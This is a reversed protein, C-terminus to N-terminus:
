VGFLLATYNYSMILCFRLGFGKTLSTLVGGGAGELPPYSHLSTATKWLEYEKTKLRFVIGFLDFVKTKPNFVTGLLAFVTGKVIHPVDAARSLECVPVNEKNQQAMPISFLFGIYIM